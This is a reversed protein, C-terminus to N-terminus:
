VGALVEGQRDLSDHLVPPNLRLESDRDAIVRTAVIGAEPCEIGGKHGRHGLLVHLCPSHSAETVNEVKDGLGEKKAIVRRAELELGVGIDEETLMFLIEPVPPSSPGNSLKVIDHSEDTGRWLPSLGDLLM